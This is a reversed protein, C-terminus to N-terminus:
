FILEQVKKFNKFSINFTLDFLIQLYLRCNLTIKEFNILNSWTSLYVLNEYYKFFRKRLIQVLTIYFYLILKFLAIIIINLNNHLVIIFNILFLVIIYSILM